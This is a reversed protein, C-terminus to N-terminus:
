YVTYGELVSHSMELHHLLEWEHAYKRREAHAGVDGGGRGSAEREGCWLAPMPLAGFTLICMIIRILINVAAALADGLGNRASTPQCGAESAPRRSPEFTESLSTPRPSPSHRWHVDVGEQPVQHKRGLSAQAKASSKGRQKPGQAKHQHLRQIMLQVSPDLDKDRARARKSVPTQRDPASIENHPSLKDWSDIEKGADAEFDRSGPFLDTVGDPHPGEAMAVLLFSIDGGSAVPAVTVYKLQRGVETGSRTYTQVYAAQTSGQLAAEFLEAFAGQQTNPGQIMSLSRNLLHEPAIDYAKSFACSVHAVKFPRKAAVLVKAVGDEVLAAERTLADIRSMTMECQEFCCSPRASVNFLTGSGSCSYLMVRTKAAKGHQVAQLVRNLERQDTEPGQVVALTRGRCGQADCQLGFMAMWEASAEKIRPKATGLNLTVSMSM